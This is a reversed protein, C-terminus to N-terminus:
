IAALQKRAPEPLYDESTIEAEADHTEDEPDDITETEVWQDSFEMAM